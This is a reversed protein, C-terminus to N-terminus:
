LLRRIFVASVVGFVFFAFAAVRSLSRDEDLVAQVYYYGCGAMALLSVALMLAEATRNSV